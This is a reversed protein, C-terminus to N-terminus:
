MITLKHVYNFFHIYMFICSPTHVSTVCYIVFIGVFKPPADSSQTQQLEWNNVQREISPQVTM